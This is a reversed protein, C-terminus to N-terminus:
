SRVVEELAAQRSDADPADPRARWAAAVNGLSARVREYYSLDPREVQGGPTWVRGYKAYSLVNAGDVSQVPLHRAVDLQADPNGGLVHVPRKPWAGLPHSHNSGYNPQNPYGLVFREPVDAPPCDKPVVIVHEAYQDLEDALAVVDRLDYEGEVDPAVAYRPREAAVVDLHDDFSADPDTFPWDCFGIPIGSPARYRGTEYGVLAPAAHITRSVDAGGNVTVVVDVADEDPTTAEGVLGMRSALDDAPLVDRPTTHITRRLYSNSVRSASTRGVGSLAALRSADAHERLHRFTGFEEAIIAAQRPGVVAQLKEEFDAALFASAGEWEEALYEAQDSTAGLRSFYEELPSPDLM